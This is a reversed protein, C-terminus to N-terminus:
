CLDIYLAHLDGADDNELTTESECNVTLHSLTKSLSSAPSKCLRCMWNSICVTYIGPM